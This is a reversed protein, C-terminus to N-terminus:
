EQPTRPSIVRLLQNINIDTPIGEPHWHWHCGCYDLLVGQAPIGLNKTEWGGTVNTVPCSVGVLGISGQSPAELEGTSFVSLEHPIISVKFGHKEGLLTIQHIRCSPTCHACSDGFPSPKAQCSDDQHAKMCPPLLVIKIKTALFQDRFARNLIETGMMNLHYEERKRGCFFRDERWQYAPHKEKLFKEVNPTYQGLASESNTAFWEALSAAQQIIITQENSTLTSLYSDWLSLRKTEEPFEGTAQMWGLLQVFNNSSPPAQTNKGDPLLLGSLFGRLFDILPKLTRHQQRIRFLWALLKQPPRALQVADAAYLRYLMGLMLFDLIYEPESRLIELHHDIIHQQFDNLTQGAASRVHTLVMDTFAAIDRYYQDSNHQQSKLSYTITEVM